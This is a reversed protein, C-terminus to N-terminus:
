FFDQCLVDTFDTTDVTVQDQLMKDKRELPIVHKDIENIRAIRTFISCSPSTVEPQEFVRRINTLNTHVKYIRYSNNPTKVFILIYKKM